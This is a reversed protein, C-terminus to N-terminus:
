TKCVELGKYDKVEIEPRIDVQAEYTFTGDENYSHGLIDPHVVADIKEKEIVDFYSEQVLKEGVEAEVQPKYSKEIISRPVKGRRFGKMTSEKQM